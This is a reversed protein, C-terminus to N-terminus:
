FGTHFAFLGNKLKLVLLLVSFDAALLIRGINGEVVSSRCRTSTYVASQDANTIGNMALMAAM